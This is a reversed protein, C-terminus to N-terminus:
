EPHSQASRQVTSRHGLSSHSARAMVRRQLLHYLYAGECFDGFVVAMVASAFLGEFVRATVTAGFLLALGIMLAVTGASGAAFRRPAPAPGLPPLGRRHALAHNYLADFPNRTPVLASLWLVAALALFLWPSQLLVGLAVLGAVIRPQLMLAEYLHDNANAIPFGQQRIFRIRSERM